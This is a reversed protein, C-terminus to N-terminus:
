MHAFLPSSNAYLHGSVSVVRHGDITGVFSHRNDVTHIALLDRACKNWGERRTM